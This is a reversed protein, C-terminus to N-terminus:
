LSLEDSFKKFNLSSNCALPFDRTAVRIQDRPAEWVGWQQLESLIYIFFLLSFGMKM